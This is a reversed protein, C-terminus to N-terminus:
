PVSIQTWGTLTKYWLNGNLYDTYLSGVRALTVDADTTNTLPSGSGYLFLIRGSGIPGPSGLTVGRCIQSM